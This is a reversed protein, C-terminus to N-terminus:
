VLGVVVQALLAIVKYCLLVLCFYYIILDILVYFVLQLFKTASADSCNYVLFDTSSLEGQRNKGETHLQMMGTSCSLARKLLTLM